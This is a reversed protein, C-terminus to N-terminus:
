KRRSTWNWGSREEDMSSVNGSIDEGGRGGKGWISRGLGGTVRRSRATQSTGGQSERWDKVAGKIGGIIKSMTGGTKSQPQPQDFYLDLRSEGDVSIRDTPALSPNRLPRSNSPALDFMSGKPGVTQSKPSGRVSPPASGTANSRTEWGDVLSVNLSPANSAFPSKKPKKAGVIQDDTSVDVTSTQARVLDTWSERALSSVDTAAVSSTRLAPPGLQTLDIESRSLSRLSPPRTQVLEVISGNANYLSTPSSQMLGFISEKSGVRQCYLSPARTSPLSGTANSGAKVIPAEIARAKHFAGGFPPLLDYAGRKDRLHQDMTPTYPARDQFLFSHDDTLENGPTRMPTKNPEM